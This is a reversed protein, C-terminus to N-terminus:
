LLSWLLTQQLQLLPWLQRWALAATRCPTLRQVLAPLQQPVGLPCPALPHELELLLVVRTMLRALLRGLPQQLPPLDVAPLPQV